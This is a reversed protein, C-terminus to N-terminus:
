GNRRRNTRVETKPRRYEGNPRFLRPPPEAARRSQEDDVESSTATEGPLMLCWRVGQGTGDGHFRIWPRLLNRNLSSITEHLRRKPDLDPSPPLPDDIRRPWGEEQFAALVREQNAAPVKFQKVVLEGLRLEQRV